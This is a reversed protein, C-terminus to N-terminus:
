DLPAALRGPRPLYHHAPDLSVAVYRARGVIERRPVAGFYRSDLSDDRDDGLLLYRGTPVTVPGYHSVPSPAYRSLRVRHRMGDLAEIAYVAPDRLDDRIGDATAPRYRAARGNVYLVNGRLAVTDGPLGIVRKVLREGAASSDVVVIDGRQPDGLQWLSVHTFPVRVDYAARNVVIRDGIRITPQMSGTPVVNWDALASRFMFMCLMFALFGKNRALLNRIAHM